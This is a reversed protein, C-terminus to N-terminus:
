AFARTSRVSFRTPENFFKRESPVCVEDDAAEEGTLVEEVEVRRESRDGMDAEIEPRASILKKRFMGEVSSKSESTLLRNFIQELNKASRPKTDSKLFIVKRYSQEVQEQTEERCYEEM